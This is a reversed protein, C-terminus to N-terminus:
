FASVRHQYLAELLASHNTCHLSLNFNVHPQTSYNLEPLAVVLLDDTQKNFWRM